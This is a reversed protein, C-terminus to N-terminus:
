RTDQDRASRPLADYVPPAAKLIEDVTTLGSGVKM